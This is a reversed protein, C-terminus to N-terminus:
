KKPLIAYNWDGHFADKTINIQALEEDTVKIGLEYKNDDKVCVIELGKKTTTNRILNIVAEVSILPTGQWNKSIFCFMKHEIKNWKSTGPPLHSVHMELGTANAMEQLQKKWLKRRSGNSGGSDCNIYLKTAKPYTKKGLTHWWRMISEVAFEATDHSIGLNVFGENRNIDYVGYPAVKGLEEILFDHDLVMQPNKKPRYESGNNKFNGILEKKKTDVSIVPLGQKMFNLSKNNIFEFQANRDPHSEKLQLMKQNLQLSYGMDKLINGVTDHSIKYGKKMLIEAINRLSRTTWFIPNEPNGYTKNALLTEIEQRINEQKMVVPKRGGGSKRIRSSEITSNFKLDRKGQIITTQSVQTLEHIAKVGGHGISEAEAALYLRKQKENLLPLMKLIRSAAAKDV